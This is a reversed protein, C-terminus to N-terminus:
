YIEKNFGEISKVINNRFMMIIQNLTENPCDALKRVLQKKDVKERCDLEPLIVGYDAVKVKVNNKEYKNSTIKAVVIYGKLNDEDDSIVVVPRIGNFKFGKCECFFIDGKRVLGVKLM